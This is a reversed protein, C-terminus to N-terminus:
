VYIYTHLMLAYYKIIITEVVISHVHLASCNMIVSMMIRCAYMQVNLKMLLGIIHLREDGIIPDPGFVTLSCEISVDDLALAAVVSLTSSFFSGTIKVIM